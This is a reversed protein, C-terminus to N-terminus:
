AIWDIVKLSPIRLFERSNKTVLSIGLSVAHAAILMDMSGVPTGAKELNSRVDGYAVAADEDFPVVELPVIFEALAKTNKERRTSKAVGYRLESLTITSICIDGVQYEMFHKLVDAPQRKIIYKCINTDPLLRALSDLRTLHQQSASDRRSKLDEYMFTLAALRYSEDGRGQYPEITTAGDLQALTSIPAGLRGGALVPM